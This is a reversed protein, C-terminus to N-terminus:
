CIIFDSSPVIFKFKLFKFTYMIKLAKIIFFSVQIKSIKKIYRHRVNEKKCIRYILIILSLSM